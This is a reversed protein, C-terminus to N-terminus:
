RETEAGDRTSSGDQTSSLRVVSEDSGVPPAGTQGVQNGFAALDDDALLEAIRDNALDLSGPRDSPVLPFQVSHGPAPPEPTVPSDRLNCPSPHFSRDRTTGAAGLRRRKILQM